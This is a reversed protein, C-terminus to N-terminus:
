FDKANLIISFFTNAININSKYDFKFANSKYDFKFANSKYDFNFHM